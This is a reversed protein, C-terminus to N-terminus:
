QKLSRILMNRRIWRRADKTVIDMCLNSSMCPRYQINAPIWEIVVDNCRGTLIALDLQPIHWVPSEVAVQPVRQHHERAVLPLDGDQLPVGGGLVDEEGSTVVAGEDQPVNCSPDRDTHDVAVWVCDVGHGEVGGAGQHGGGALVLLQAQQVGPRPLDNSLGLSM